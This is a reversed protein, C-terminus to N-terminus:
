CPTSSSCRATVLQPWPEFAGLPVLPEEKFKRLSPPQRRKAVNGYSDIYYDNQHSDREMVPSDAADLRQYRRDRPRWHDSCGVRVRKRGSWPRGTSAILTQSALGARPRCSTRPARASLCRPSGPRTRAAAATRSDPAANSLRPRRAASCHLERFRTRGEGRAVIVAVGPVACVTTPRARPLEHLETASRFLARRFNQLGRRSAQPRQLGRLSRRQSAVVQQFGSALQRAPPGHRSCRSRPRRGGSRWRSLRRGRPPPTSGVGTSM